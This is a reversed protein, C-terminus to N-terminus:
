TRHPDPLALVDLHDVVVRLGGDALQRLRRRVYPAAASQLGPAHQCAATVWGILWEQTLEANHPGLQWPSPRASVRLGAQLFLSAATTGAVPGLLATGRAVRRQHANFAAVVPGDLPDPPSLSTRGSVSLAFLVDSGADVTQDVVHRLEPETWLDLLASATILGAGSLDVDASTVDVCRTEVTVPSGDAACPMPGALALRLLDVDRDFLVWHQPSRLRPALWRLMSGTGSGLDHVVLRSATPLHSSLEAVLDVARAAADAPERLALWGVTVSTTASSM